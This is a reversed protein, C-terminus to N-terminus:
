KFRLGKAQVRENTVLHPYGTVTAERIPNTASSDFNIREQLNWVWSRNILGVPNENMPYIRRHSRVAPDAGATHYEVM